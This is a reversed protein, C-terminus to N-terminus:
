VVQRHRTICTDLVENLPLSWWAESFIEVESFGSYGQAEVAARVKKLDIVGDGMMGRDTLMDKTPVLWDCVHYALIRKKGAREIGAMLKPDWWIHYVDLAVGIDGSQAPDLKDCLDLAHEITNVCARDAAYM